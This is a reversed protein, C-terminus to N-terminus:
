MVDVQDVKKKGKGHHEKAPPAPASPPELPAITEETKNLTIDGTDSTVHVSIGGRGVTGSANSSNGSKGGSTSTAGFDNAIDGHRTVLTYQFNARSPLRLAVDGHHTTLDLNGLSASSGNELSIDGHDDSIHLDGKVDHLEVDKTRTALTMPGVLGNGKLDGSDMTLDGDLRAFELTTRSTRIAIGKALKSLHTDGFIDSTIVATGALSDLTLDDLRGDVTVNGGINSAHLSGKRVTLYADGSVQDVVVDGHQSALKVYGTRQNINVDGRDVYVEVNAKAPLYIDMDTVVGKQGAGRTNGQLDVVTGNAQLSPSTSANTSDAEGQGSAFVRKRWEVKVQPQDWQSVTVNGRECTVRLTGNEPVSTSLEGNFNYEDGFLHMFNDDVNFDDRWPGFNFQSGHHAYLASGVIIIIVLLFISGGGMAPALRGTSRAYFYEGLRVLGIVLLLVPWWRAFDNLIPISYGFNRLLFIIGVAILLLPGAVSRPRRPPPQYYYMGPSAM